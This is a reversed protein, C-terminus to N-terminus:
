GLEFSTIGYINNLPLDPASGNYMRATEFVPNMAYTAVLRRAAENPQPIDLFFCQGPPISSLLAKLLRDAQNYDDAFLPGIKYGAFCKRIVGFACIRSDRIIVKATANKQRLWAQLFGDRHCGFHRADYSILDERHIDGPSIIDGADLSCASSRGEYRINRHALEFDSRRYFDQQAVVGDLGITCGRLSNMAHDWIRRGYCKGRFEPDVIYFGIFGFCDNYNVASITAIVQNGLYGAWFGHSDAAHFSFEDDLGPNWGESKAWAIPISMLQPPLPVIKLDNHM